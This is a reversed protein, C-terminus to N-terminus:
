YLRASGVGLDVGLRVLDYGGRGLSGSRRTKPSHAQASRDQQGKQDGEEILEGADVRNEIESRANKLQGTQRRFGRQELRHSNTHGIEDEGEHPQPENVPQASARQKVNPRETIDARETENGQREERLM